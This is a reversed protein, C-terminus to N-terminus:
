RARQVPRPEGCEALDTGHRTVTGALILKPGLLVLGLLLVLTKEELFVTVHIIIVSCACICFKNGLPFLFMQGM